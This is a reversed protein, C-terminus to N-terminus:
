WEDEGADEAAVEVIVIDDGIPYHGGYQRRLDAFVFPAMSLWILFSPPADRMPGGRHANRGVDYQLTLCARSVQYAFALLRSMQDGQDPNQM